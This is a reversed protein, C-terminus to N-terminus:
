RPLLRDITRNLNQITFDTIPRSPTLNPMPTSLTAKPPTGPRPQATAPAAGGVIQVRYTPAQEREAMAITLTHTDSRKREASLDASAPAVAFSIGCSITTSATFVITRGLQRFQTKNDPGFASLSEEVWAALGLNNGKEPDIGGTACLPRGMTDLSDVFTIDKTESFGEGRAFGLSLSPAPSLPTYGFKGGVAAADDGKIQLVSKAVWGKVRSRYASSEVANVGAAIECKVQAIFDKVATTRIIAPAPVSCASLLYASAVVINMRAFLGCGMGLAM